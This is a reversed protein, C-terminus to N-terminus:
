NPPVPVAGPERRKLRPTGKAPADQGVIRGDAKEQQKKARREERRIRADAELDQRRVKLDKVMEGNSEGAAGHLALGLRVDGQTGSIAIPLELGAGDKKFFRDAPKLLMGKWGGVMQSATADTRVHGKFEFVNGDMSYVGNLLVLAGPIQYHLDNVFMLGRALSFRASMGSRVEAQRDTSATKVEEPRGMARASLGDVKDQVKPHNFRVETLDFHGALELKRAVREPGPPVHLNAKMVLAGNMLPPTTKTGLRLFDQIKASLVDVNLAIDHGKGRVQRVTGRALFASSLMRARVPDLTTDGTTGDVYAHFVTHLPVPHESVDLSFDPTDTEGDITVHDLVGAFQGRSSLTGGLGKITNLDAHDFDYLGDIATSRPDDSDWPGFHGRAHIQGIPKPNTLEAEYAFPKAEGIDRLNLSQIDFELPVKGPKATEIVLKVDSCRLDDVILAVKERQPGAGSQAGFLDGRDGRPPVHIEMGDVDVRAIRTPPHLLSKVSTRFGFSRVYVLTPAQSQASEGPVAARGIRLGHGHVEVGEAIAISLGDLEVPAHFRAALTEIVRQRVLPEVHRLVYEAAILFAICGVIVLSLVVTVWRRRWWRPRGTEHRGDM